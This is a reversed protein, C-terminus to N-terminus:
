RSTLGRGVLAVLVAFALVAFGVILGAAGLGTKDAVLVFAGYLIFGFGMAALLLALLCFALFAITRSIGRKIAKTETELKYRMLDSSLRVADGATIVLDRLLSM